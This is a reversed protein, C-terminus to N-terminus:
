GSRRRTAARYLLACLLVLVVLGGALLFAHNLLRRVDTTAQTSVKDLAPSELTANLNSVLSDLQQALATAKQATLAYDLIDFPRANTQPSPPPGSPKPEGVGFRKMLVDTNTVTTSLSDSLATAAKLFEVMEGGQEELVRVLAERESAIQGPLQAATRSISEAALSARDVSRSLQTVNTLAQAVQPREMAELIMLDIQGRLIWPMRQLTFMAREALLRTETVERVAPDLSSFPDLASLDLVGSGSQQMAVTRPLASAMRTPQALFSERLDPTAKYYAGISTRLDQQQAPALVQDAVGWANSEIQRARQVWRTYLDANASAAQLSEVAMRTLSALSVMDFLSAYPNDRTAVSIGALGIEVKFNLATRSTFPLGVPGTMEDVSEITSAIYDDAVRMLSQQLAGADPQNSRGGPFLISVTRAPVSATTEVVRCGTAPGLLALALIAACLPKM